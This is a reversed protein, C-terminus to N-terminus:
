RPALTLRVSTVGPAVEFSAPEVRVDDRRGSRDLPVVLHRGERLGRLEVRHDGQMPRLLQAHLRGDLFSVSEGSAALRAAGAEGPAPRVLELDSEHVWYLNVGEPLRELGELEVSLTLGPELRVELPAAGDAAALRAADVLAERYSASGPRLVLELPGDPVLLAQVGDGRAEAECWTLELAGPRRWASLSRQADFDLAVPAGSAADVLRLELARPADAVLV